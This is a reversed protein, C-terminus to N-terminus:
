SRVGKVDQPRYKRPARTQGTTFLAELTREAKRTIAKIRQPRRPSYNRRPM